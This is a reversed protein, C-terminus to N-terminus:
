IWHHHSLRFFGQPILITKWVEDLMDAHGCQMKYATCFLCCSVVSNQIWTIRAHLETHLVLFYARVLTSRKLSFGSLKDLQGETFNWVFVLSLFVTQKLDRKQSLSHHMKVFYQKRIEKRDHKAGTHQKRKSISSILSVITDSQLKGEPQARRSCSSGVCLMQSSSGGDCQFGRLQAAMSLNSLPIQKISM